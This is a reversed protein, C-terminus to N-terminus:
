GVTIREAGLKSLVEVCEDFAAIPASGFDVVVRKGEATMEPDSIYHVVGYFGEENISNGDDPDFWKMFWARLASWETEPADGSLAFSVYDWIFPRLLLTAAGVTFTSEPIQVCGPSDVLISKAGGRPILDSRFPLKLPGTVALEGDATRLAPELHADPCHSLAERFAGLYLARAPEILDRRVM